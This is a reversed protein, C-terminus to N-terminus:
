SHARFSQFIVTLALLIATRTIFRVSLEVGRELIHYNEKKIKGYWTKEKFLFGLEGTLHESYSHVASNSWWGRKQVLAWSRKAKGYKWTAGPIVTFGSPTIQSSRGLVPVGGGAVGDWFTPKCWGKGSAEMHHNHGSIVLDVNYKEFLPSILRTTDEHDAWCTWNWYWRFFLLLLTFNSHGLRGSTHFEAPGGAMKRSQLLNRLVGSFKWCLSICTEWM